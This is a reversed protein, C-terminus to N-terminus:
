FRTGLTALTYWTYGSHVWHLWLSLSHPAVYVCLVGHCFSATSALSSLPIFPCSSFVCRDKLKKGNDSKPYLYFCVCEPFSAARFVSEGSAMKDMASLVSVMVPGKRLQELKKRKKNQKSQQKSPKPQLAVAGLSTSRCAPVACPVKVYACVIQLFVM